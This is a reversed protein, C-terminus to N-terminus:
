IFIIIEPSIVVVLTMAIWIRKRILRIIGLPELPRAAVVKSIMLAAFRCFMFSRDIHDLRNFYGLGVLTFCLFLYCSRDICSAGITLVYIIDVVIGGLFTGAMWTRPEAGSWRNQGFSVLGLCSFLGNIVLILVPGVPVILTMSVGFGEDVVRFMSSSEHPITTISSQITFTTNFCGMLRQLISIPALSGPHGNTSTFCSANKRGPEGFNYWITIIITDPSCQRSLKM